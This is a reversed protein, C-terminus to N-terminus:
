RGSRPRFLDSALMGAIMAPVFWLSEAAIRGLGAVAPGPCYGALGWGMGFLAAGLLLPLTITDKGPLQLAEALVPSGRRRVWAYGPVAVALAGAMVLGLSPDWSGFVDLFNLVKEPQTMRSVTLGLGFVLGSAFAAVPILARNM